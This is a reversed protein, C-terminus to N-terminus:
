IPSKSFVVKETTSKKAEYMANDAADLLAEINQLQEPLAYAIGISCGVKVTEGQTLQIPPNLCDRIKNAVTAAVKEPQSVFTLMVVFEDGGFRCVVDERRSAQRLRRSVETLVEDGTAHGFNDNVHKFGDLDIFLVIMGPPAAPSQLGKAIDQMVSLLGRRNFLGTLPDETLMKELSKQQQHFLTMDMLFGVYISQVQTKSGQEKINVLAIRLPINSGDAHRGHQEIIWQETNDNDAQIRGELDRMNLEPVLLSIHKGIAFQLQYGFLAEFSRNVNQIYGRVDTIVIADIANQFIVRMQHEKLQLERSLQRQRALMNQATMLGVLAMAALAILLSLYWRDVTAIPTAFEPTGVIRASAMGVYHMVTIGAGMVMGGILHKWARWRQMRECRQRFWLAMTALSVAVLVSVLVGVVDFGMAAPMKMALMGSYHMLGIGAGTMLGGLWLDAPRQHAHYMWRMAVWSAMWAPLISLMTLWPHYQVTVCLAFALMGIFHMSWVATGLAVAGGLLAMQQDRVQIFKQASDALIMALVSASAAVVYSLLVLGANYRFLIASSGPLPSDFPFYVMTM